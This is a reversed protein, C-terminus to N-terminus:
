MRSKTCKEIAAFVAPMDSNYFSWAYDHGAFTVDLGETSNQIATKAEADLTLWARDNNAGSAFYYEPDSGDFRFVMEDPGVGKVGPVSLSYINAVTYAIRLMGTGNESSAACRDFKGKEFIALIDFDGVRGVTKQEAQLPAALTLALAAALGFQSRTM